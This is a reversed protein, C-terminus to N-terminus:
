ATILITKDKVYDTWLKEAGSEDVLFKILMSDLVERPYSMDNNEKIYRSFHSLMRAYEPEQISYLSLSGFSGNEGKHKILSGFEIKGLFIEYKEKLYTLDVQVSTLLPRFPNNPNGVYDVNFDYIKVSDIKILELTTKAYANADRNMM